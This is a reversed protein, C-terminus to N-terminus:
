QISLICYLVINNRHLRIRPFHPQMHVESTFHILHLIVFISLM